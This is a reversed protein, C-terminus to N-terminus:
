KKPKFALKNMKKHQKFCRALIATEILIDSLGTHEEEFTIDNIMYRYLVEATAQPRGVKSVFGNRKCFEIYTKQKCITSQAMRLTDWLEIGYPFFYRYKSKTIYRQTTNVARNDFRMNHASAVKINYKECLDHVKKRMGYTNTLVAEGSALREYYLPLKWWYYVTAMLDKDYFIDSNILSATEYINGQKDVVALGMDYVLPQDLGNTTETDIMLIYNRRKDIKKSM